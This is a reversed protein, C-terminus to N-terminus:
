VEGIIKITAKASTVIGGYGNKWYDGGVDEAYLVARSRLEALESTEEASIIFHSKTESLVKPAECDCEVHDTYYRKPIKYTKM